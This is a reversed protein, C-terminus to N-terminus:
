QATPEFGRILAAGRGRHKQPVLGLQPGGVDVADGVRKPFGAGAGGTRDVRLGPAGRTMRDQQGPADPGLNAREAAVRARANEERRM